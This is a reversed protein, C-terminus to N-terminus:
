KSKLLESNDHINGCVEFREEKLWEGLPRCGLRPEFALQICWAGIENNWKVTAISKLEGKLRLIDGEFIRTGNKDHLGTFQGLSESKVVHQRLYEGDEDYIHIRAVETARNYELDGYVWEGDDVRKGRFLINRM